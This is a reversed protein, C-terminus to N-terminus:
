LDMSRIAKCHLSAGDSTPSYPPGTVWAWPIKQRQPSASEWRIPFARKPLQEDPEPRIAPYGPRPVIVCAPPGSTRSSVWGGQPAASYLGRRLTDSPIAAIGESVKARLLRPIPLRRCDGQTGKGAGYLAASGGPRAAGPNWPEAARRVAPQPLLLLTSPQCRSGVARLADGHAKNRRGM